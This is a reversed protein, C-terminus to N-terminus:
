SPGVLAWAFKGVGGPRPCCGWAVALSEVLWLGRGSEDDAGALTRLEPREGSADHVEVQLLEDRLEFRVAILRGPSVRAHKLSNTVLESLLLEGVDVFLEGGDLDGLFERLLRRATGASKRHRRLWYSREGARTAPRQEM